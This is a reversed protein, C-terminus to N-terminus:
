AARKRSAKMAYVPAEDELFVDVARQIWTQADVKTAIVLDSMRLRQSRTLVELSPDTIPMPRSLSNMFTDLLLTTRNRVERRIRQNRAKTRRRRCIKSTTRKSIAM